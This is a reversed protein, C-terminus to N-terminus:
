RFCREMSEQVKVLNFPKAIFGKVGLGIAEEVHAKTPDSSIMMVKQGPKDQRIQRLTELGNSGPLHIDLVVLDFFSDKIAHLMPGATESEGAVNMGLQNLMHKLAGRILADDDVIFVKKRRLM